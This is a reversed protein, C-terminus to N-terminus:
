NVPRVARNTRMAFVGIGLPNVLHRRICCLFDASAQMMAGLAVFLERGGDARNELVRM